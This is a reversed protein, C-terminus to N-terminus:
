AEEEEPFILAHEEEDDIDIPVSCTVYPPWSRSAESVKLREAWLMLLKEGVQLAREEIHFLTVPFPANSEVCVIWCDDIADECAIEQMRMQAHYFMRKAHWPFREPDSSSSSKLETLFNPGRVDPTARCQLGMWRFRITQEIVGALWPQAVKSERVADAMWRSKDYEDMTLIESDPHEAVFADYEKGRRQKGPYGCVEKTGFVLAHTATGIRMAANPKSEVTRAHLGHAASKGYAKLHSFRVPLTELPVTAAAPAPANM